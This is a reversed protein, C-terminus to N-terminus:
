PGAGEEGDIEGPWVWGNASYPPPDEVNGTVPADDAFRSLPLYLEALEALAPDTSDIAATTDETAALRITDNLPATSAPLPPASPISNSPSPLALSELMSNPQNCTSAIFDTERTSSGSASTSTSTSTSSTARSEGTTADDVPQGQAYPTDRGGFLGAGSKQKGKGKTSPPPGEEEKPSKKSRMHRQTTWVSALSHYEEVTADFNEEQLMAERVTTYNQDHADLCALIITKLNQWERLREPPTDALAIALITNEQRKEANTISFRLPNEELLLSETFATAKEPPAIFICKFRMAHLFSRSYRWYGRKSAFVTEPGPAAIESMYSRYNITDLHRVFQPTDADPDDRVADNGRMERRSMTREALRRRNYEFLDASRSAANRARAEIIKSTWHHRTTGGIQRPLARDCWQCIRRLPNEDASLTNTCDQGHCQTQNFTHNQRDKCELCLIGDAKLTCTCYDRNDGSPDHWKHSQLPPSTNISSSSATTSAPPLRGPTNLPFRQTKSSNGSEWCSKCLHRVRNHYTNEHGKAFSDRVICADCIPKSCYRCPKAPGGKTHIRSSCEFPAREKLRQWYLTGHRGISLEPRVPVATSSEPSSATEPIGFGHLLVRLTTSLRALTILEGVPLFDSVSCAIPWLSLLQELTPASKSDQDM